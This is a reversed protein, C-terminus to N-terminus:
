RKECKEGEYNPPCSCSSSTGDDSLECKGFVCDNLDCQDSCLKFIKSIFIM